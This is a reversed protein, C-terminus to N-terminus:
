LPEPGGERSIYTEMSIITRVGGGGGGLPGMTERPLIM